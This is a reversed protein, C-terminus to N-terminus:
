LKLVERNNGDTDAILATWKNRIKECTSHDLGELAIETNYYMYEYQAVIDKLEDIGNAVKKQLATLRDPDIDAPLSHSALVFSAALCIAFVSNFFM